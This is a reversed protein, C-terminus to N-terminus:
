QPKHRLEELRRLTEPDVKDELRSPMRTSDSASDLAQGSNADGALEAGLETPTMRSVGARSATRQVEQDASVVVVHVDAPQGAIRRAILTDATFRGGAFVVEVPAGKIPESSTSYPGRGDFVLVVRAGRLAAFGALRDALWDRHAFIEDKSAGRFLAHLVNYGDVIYLPGSV